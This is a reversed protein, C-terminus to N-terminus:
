ISVHTERKDVWWTKKKSKNMTTKGRLEKDLIMM